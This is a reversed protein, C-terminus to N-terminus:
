NTLINRCKKVAHWLWAACLARLVLPGDVPFVAFVFATQANLLMLTQRINVERELVMSYYRSLAVLPMRVAAAIRSSISKFEVAPQASSIVMERKM